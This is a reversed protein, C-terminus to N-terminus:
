KMAYCETDYCVGGQFCQAVATAQARLCDRGCDSITSTWIWNCVQNWTSNCSNECSDEDIKAQNICAGITVWQGSKGSPDTGNIPDDGAYMYINAQGGDFRIPDKSV